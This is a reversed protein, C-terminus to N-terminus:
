FKRGFDGEPTQADKVSFGRGNLALGLGCRTGVEARLDAASAFSGM